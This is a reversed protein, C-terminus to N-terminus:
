SVGGLSQGSSGGSRFRGQFTHRRAGPRRRSTRHRPPGRRVYRGDGTRAIVNGDALLELIARSASGEVGCRREVQSPTMALGPHELFCHQVTIVAEGIRHSARSM